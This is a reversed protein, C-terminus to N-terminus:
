RLNNATEFICIYQRVVERRRREQEELRLRERSIRDSSSSQSGPSISGEGPSSKLEEVRSPPLTKQQEAVAKRFTCFILM